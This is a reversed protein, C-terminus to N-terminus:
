AHFIKVIPLAYGYGIKQHFLPHFISARFPSFIPTKARLANVSILILYRGNVPTKQHHRAFSSWPVLSPHHNNHNDHYLFASFHSKNNGFPYISILM